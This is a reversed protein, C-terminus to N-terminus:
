FVSRDSIWPLIVRGAAGAILIVSLLKGGEGLSLHYREVSFSAWHTVLIMQFSVLFVGGGFGPGSVSNAVGAPCMEVFLPCIASSVGAPERYFILFLLGCLVSISSQFGVAAKWGFARSLVPLM